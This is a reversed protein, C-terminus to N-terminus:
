PNPIQKQPQATTGYTFDVDFRDPKKGTNTPFHPKIDVTVTQGPVAPTTLTAPKPLINAWEQEM